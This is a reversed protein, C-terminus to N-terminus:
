RPVRQRDLVQKLWLLATRWLLKGGSPETAAIPAEASAGAVARAQQTPTQPEVLPIADAEPAPDGETTILKAINQAFEAFLARAIDV